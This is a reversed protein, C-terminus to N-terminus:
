FINTDSIYIDYGVKMNKYLIGGTCSGSFWARSLPLNGDLDFLPTGRKLSVGISCLIVWAIHLRGSTLFFCVNAPFDFHFVLM